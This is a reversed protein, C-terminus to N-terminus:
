CMLALVFHVGNRLRCKWTCKRSHFIDIGTLIERFNTGLPGTLLIGANTWISAQRRGPLVGNNSGIITLNIVCIHTVWGSQNFVYIPGLVTENRKIVLGYFSSASNMGKSQFVVKSGWFRQENSYRRRIPIYNGMIFWLRDPSRSLNIIPDRYLFVPDKM